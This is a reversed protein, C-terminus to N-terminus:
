NAEGIWTFEMFLIRKQDQTPLSSFTFHIREDSLEINDAL